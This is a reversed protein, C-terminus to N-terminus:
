PTALAIVAVTLPDAVGTPALGTATQFNAVENETAGGYVSDAGRRFGQKYPTWEGLDYGLGILADQLEAVAPSRDGRKLM